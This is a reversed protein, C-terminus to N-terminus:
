ADSDNTALLATIQARLEPPCTTGRQLERLRARFAQEFDSMDRCGRCHDLHRQMREVADTPMEGRVFADLEAMAAGCDYGPTGPTM